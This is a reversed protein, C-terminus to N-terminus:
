DSEIGLIEDFDANSDDDEAERELKNIETETEAAREIVDIEDETDAKVAERVENLVTEPEDLADQATQHSRDYNYGDTAASDHNLASVYGMVLAWMSIGNINSISYTHARNAAGEVVTNSTTEGLWEQYFEEVTFNETSFDVVVSSAEEITEVISDAYYGLEFVTESFMKYMRDSMDESSSDESKMHKAKKWDAVGRIISGTKDNMVIGRSQISETKNNAARIEMGTWYTHGMEPDAFQVSNHDFWVDVVLKDSYDRVNAFMFSTMNMDRIVHELTEIIAKNQVLNFRNSVPCIEKGDATIVMKVSDSLEFESSDLGEGYAVNVIKHETVAEAVEEFRHWECDGLEGPIKLDSNLQAALEMIGFEEPNRAM